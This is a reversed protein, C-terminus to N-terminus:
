ADFFNLQQETWGNTTVANICVLETNKMKEINMAMAIENFGLTDYVIVLNKVNRRSSTESPNIKISNYKNLQNSEIDM